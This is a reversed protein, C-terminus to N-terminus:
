SHISPSGDAHNIKYCGSPLLTAMRRYQLLSNVQSVHIGFGAIGGALFLHFPTLQGSDSLMAMKLGEYVGFYGAFSPIDRLLTATIGRYLGKVGDAMLVQRACDLINKYLKPRTPDQIQLRVKLLEIPCNVFAMVSGALSGSIIVRELPLDRGPM